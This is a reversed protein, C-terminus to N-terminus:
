LARADPDLGRRQLRPLVVPLPSLVLMSDPVDRGVVANAGIQVHNGVKVNGIVKAGVGLYVNNGITPVGAGRANAANVICVGSNLVCDDGIRVGGAIQLGHTTHVDLRQGIQVTVKIRAGTVIVVFGKAILYAVRLLQKLIPVHITRAWAGFRHVAIVWLGSMAIPSLFSREDGRAYWRWDDVLQQLLRKM